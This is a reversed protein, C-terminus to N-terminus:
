RNNSLLKRSRNYGLKMILAKQRRSLTDKVALKIFSQSSKAEIGFSELVLAWSIQLDGTIQNKIIPQLEKYSRLVNLVSENATSAGQSKGDNKLLSRFITTLERKGRSAKLLEADCLFAVLMGRVYVSSSPDAWRTKSAEILPVRQGRRRNINIARSLTDLFDEFRIRGLWVGTKLAQYAAFGEYFWAYDGELSLGNPIWLHFLEHRLQEHLQQTARTVFTAPSSILIVNAGRTEARWRDFAAVEPFQSLFIVVDSKPPNGLVRRYEAFIQSSIQLAEEDGFQWKGRTILRVNTGEITKSVERVDKGVFFVANEIDDVLYENRKIKRESSRAEWGEPLRFSIKTSVRKNKFKPLLDYLMLFGSSKDLWSIHATSTMEKPISLDVSYRFGAGVEAAAFEGNGFKKVPFETGNSDYLRFDSVRKGLGSADAYSDAFVWNKVAMDGSDTFRGVVEVVSTETTEYLIEIELDASFAQSRMIMLAFIIAMNVIFTKRIISM